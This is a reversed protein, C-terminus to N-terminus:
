FFMLVPTSLGSFQHFGAGRGNTSMFHEFCLYTREVEKKWVSLATKFIKVAFSVEGRDLLSKALLTASKVHVSIEGTRTRFLTGECGVIDGVDWKKFAAYSEEGLDDRSVYLQIKGDSDLLHAFSAKGMIRRSTMRGAVKVTLEEGSETLKAEKETYESIAAASTHTFEYKTIEFPNNGAEVLTGLGTAFDVESECLLKGDQAM